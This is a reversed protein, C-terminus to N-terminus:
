DVLISAGEPLDTLEVAYVMPIYNECEARDVSDDETFNVHLVDDELTTETVIFDRTCVNMLTKAVFVGEGFDIEPLVVDSACLESQEGLKNVESQFNSYQAPSKVVVSGGKQDVAEMVCGTLQDTLNTVTVNAAVGSQCGALLALTALALTKKFM